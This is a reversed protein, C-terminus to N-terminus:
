QKGGSQGGSGIAWIRRHLHRPTSPRTICRQRQGESRVSAWAFLPVCWLLVVRCAARRSAAFLVHSM